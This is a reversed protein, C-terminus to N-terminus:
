QSLEKVSWDCTVFVCGYEGERYISFDSGVDTVTFRCVDDVLDLITINPIHLGIRFSYVGPTLVNGPIRVVALFTRLGMPADVTDPLKTQTVFIRRGLNDKVTAGLLGDLPVKKSQYTINVVIPENHSFETTDEGCLNVTKVAVVFINKRSVDLATRVYRNQDKSLSSSLYHSIVSSPDGRTVIQGYDLMLGYTCNQAIAGMQHSVFLVTR